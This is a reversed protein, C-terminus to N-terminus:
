TPAQTGPQLSLNYPALPARKLKHKGTCSPRCLIAICLALYRDQPVECKYLKITRPNRRERRQEDRLQWRPLSLADNFV